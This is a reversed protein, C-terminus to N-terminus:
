SILKLVERAVVEDANTIALRAINEKLRNQQQEDKALAIVTPVLKEKAESDKIMLGAQKNVLNQANATQHDEAAFPFPVFVVPKKAVCLEAVSMAGARSVVIDAAAYAYEMQTIFSNAWINRNEAARASAKEAFPKGTQWILQVDNKAFEDISADIAENIGKAGLSGGTVFVTKKSPELGFFGIGESRSITNNVINQRVPNGTIMIKDAPFFKEMGDTAVFIKSAKRGLLINSKGAFSNAEHIFTAVGQSQAYRLVPFSSYGGVGIVADPQFTKIISRVQWFSKILKFPLGINKILSSRNFGAIDLGQINYGAQPVKEMEMKGKAGVFLIEITPQLRRLAHAIAVAPFIHGGTGGGAIIIKKNVSINKFSESAKRWIM